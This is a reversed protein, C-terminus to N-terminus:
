KAKLRIGCNPCYNSPDFKKFTKLCEPCTCNWWDNWGDGDNEVIWKKQPIKQEKKSQMEEGCNPCYPTLDPVTDTLWNAGTAEAGYGGVLRGNVEKTRANYDCESCYYDSYGRYRQRDERKVWTGM